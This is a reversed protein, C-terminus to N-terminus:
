NQIPLATSGGSKSPDNYSPTDFNPTDGYRETMSSPGYSWGPAAAFSSAVGPPIVVYHRARHHHLTAADASAYLTMSLGLVAGLRVGAAGLVSVSFRKTFTLMKFEVETQLGVTQKRFSWQPV